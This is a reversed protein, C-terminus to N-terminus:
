PKSALDPKGTVLNVPVSIHELVILWEGGIRRYGDTVRVTRDVPHGRKDVGAVRQISHSFGLDGSVSIELNTITITPTGTFTGFFGIWAKRYADAGLHQRPPVLDFVVLSEDPVYNKMMADVDGANFAAAFRSELARIPAESNGDVAFRTTAAALAVIIAGYGMTSM